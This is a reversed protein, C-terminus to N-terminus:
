TCASQAQLVFLEAQALEPHRAGATDPFAVAGDQLRITFRYVADPTQPLRLGAKADNDLASALDRAKLLLPDALSRARAGNCSITGSDNVLMTLRPGQGTRTLLFLDPSQVNLGCGALLALAAAARGLWGVGRGSM